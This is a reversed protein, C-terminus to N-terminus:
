KGSNGRKQFRVAFFGDCGHKHPYTHVFGSNDALPHLLAPLEERPVIAFEPTEELFRRVVQENEEATTTCTSYVLTGGPRLTKAMSRLIALQLKALRAPDGPKIRWRADPHRRLTGLGSCPADVLIRDPMPAVLDTLPTTADFPRCLVKTLGLRRADREVLRLRSANRDLALTEGTDAVLEAIATTKTGPAACADLILEGPKPDLLSVVLQSAEDQLTFRGELFAPDSSPSGKDGLNIGWPAFTCAKAAPFRPTLETLLEERSNKRPNVRITQPPRLTDARALAGAEEPGLEAIWRQALWEPVSCAHVLHGVPDEELTPPQHAQWERVMRRLVANVLGSARPAGAQKICRVTEDVAVEPPVRDVHVIQHAGLRLANRVIPELEDFPRDIFQALLFDLKGRQRLTGYVLETAFARDATSLAQNQFAARLSLNAYAGVTEVRDLVRL